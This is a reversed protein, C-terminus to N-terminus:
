DKLKQGLELYRLYAAFVIRFLNGIEDLHKAVIVLALENAFSIPTVRRPLTLKLLGDYSGM